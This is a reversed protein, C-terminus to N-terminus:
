TFLAKRWQFVPKTYVRVAAKYLEAERYVDKWRLLHTMEAVSSKPTALRAYNTSGGDASRLRDQNLNTPSGTTM